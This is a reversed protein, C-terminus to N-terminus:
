NLYKSFNAIYGFQPTDQTSIFLRDTGEHYAIEHLPVPLRLTKIYRGEGNMVVIDLGKKANGSSYISLLKDGCSILSSHYRQSKARREDHDPGYITKTRNGDMDYLRLEDRNKGAAYIIGKEPSVATIFRIDDDPSMSDLLTVNQTILNLRGIRSTFTRKQSNRSIASCIITTDNIYHPSVYANGVGEFSMTAKVFPTYEPNSIAETLNYGYIKGQNAENVYLTNTKNDYFPSGYNHLEGPGGGPRGFRGVVKSLSVDYATFKYEDNLHDDFLLVDGFLDLGGNHMIPLEDDLSVIHDTAIEEIKDRSDEYVVTSERKDTSCTTILLEM